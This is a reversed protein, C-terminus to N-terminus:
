YPFNNGKKLVIRSPERILDLHYNSAAFTTENNADSFTKVHTVSAVPSRPLVVYNKYHNLYAGTRMGEWLPDENDEFSDLYLQLTQTMLARGTYEECFRRASELFPRLIREDTSDDVRLYEKVEQLTVPEQSPETKVKLGAMIYISRTVQSGIILIYLVGYIQQEMRVFRQLVQSWVDKLINEYRLACIQEHLELKSLDTPNTIEVKPMKM